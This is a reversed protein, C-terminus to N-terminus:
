KAAERLGRWQHSSCRGMISKMEDKWGARWAAGDWYRMQRGNVFGAVLRNRRSWVGYNRVEYWGAVTPPFLDARRWETLENDNVREITLM